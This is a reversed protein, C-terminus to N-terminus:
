EETPTTTETTLAVEQSKNGLIMDIYKAGPQGQKGKNKGSLKNAKRVLVKSRRKHGRTQEHIGLGKKM